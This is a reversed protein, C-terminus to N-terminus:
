LSFNDPFCSFVSKFVNPLATQFKMDEGNVPHKFCLKFAHLALRGISNDENGYKKDGVVPHGIDQLHVRIQNKRGTELRLEVLSYGDAAYLRSYHTIALKGGNDFRSSHSVYMNDDKLWSKIIGNGKKMEGQVVAIYRRDYVKEKWNEEFDTAIKKNKAFFLLGSTYKDLRHVVHAHCRQKSEEFYHNLISQVSIDSSKLSNTMIGDKKNVVIIYKDEYVIHVWKNKFNYGGKGSVIKVKMGVTLPYNYQSICKDNVYVFHGSLMEKVKNRSIGKMTRIIFSMLEDDNNVNFVLEKPKNKDSLNKM